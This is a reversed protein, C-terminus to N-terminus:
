GGAAADRMKWYKRSEVFQWVLLAPIGLLLDRGRKLLSLGLAFDPPLGFVGGLMIYAGEQVGIANPVIFAVSRIAYLLSEIALAPAVGLKVGMLRLALWAEIGTAVWAVLHLLTSGIMARPSAHIRRIETQVAGARAILSDLWDRAIRATARVLLSSGSRQVAIFAPIVLLSVGLGLAVPVALEAQPRLWLTLALGIATYLIQACVEATVDVVTSAAAIAREVGHIILARAGLVYGGVQSLPLVESGGDRVFRAWVFLWVRGPRYFLSWALGMLVTAILHFGAIACLGTWGAARLAAGIEPAGVHLVLWVALAIGALLIAVALVKM